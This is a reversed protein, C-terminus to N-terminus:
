GQGVNVTERVVFQPQASNMLFLRGLYEGVMGLAFLQTGSTFLVLVSLWGWVQVPEPSSIEEIVFVIALLLGVLLLTIGLVSAIRLPMVSFNVFMNMYLSIMKRLTYGSKGEDRADHRVRVRSISRTTRLILGDIYPYPGRYKIVEKATFRNIAKFSSLYLDLPKNLLLSAVINNLKSGLNRFWHHQKTEYFSFVVDYGLRLEEVLRCVEEPPNQFDDDMIVIGDGSAFNLGAMVAGHEGFNRALNIFKIEPFGAALSRCVEASNDSSGDNVLVFELDYKGALHLRLSEVLRSVTKAGNYVPVVISLSIIEM